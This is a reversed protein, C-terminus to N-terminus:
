AGEAEPAEFRKERGQLEYAKQLRANQRAEKKKASLNGVYLYMIAGHFIIKLVEFYLM